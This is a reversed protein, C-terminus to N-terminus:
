FDLRLPLQGTRNGSNEATQVSTPQGFTSLSSFDVSTPAFNPHNLCNTFTGEFRLRLRRDFQKRRYRKAIRYTAQAVFPLEPTRRQTRGASDVM